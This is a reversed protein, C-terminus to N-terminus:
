ADHAVVPNAAFKEGVGRIAGGGKPLVVSPAQNVGFPATASTDSEGRQQIPGHRQVDSNDCM